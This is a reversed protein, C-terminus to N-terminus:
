KEKRQDRIFRSLEYVATVDTASGTSRPEEMELRAPVSGFQVIQGPKAQCQQDHLRLGDVFTGNTSGLDRVIVEPGYVLIECHHTSISDDRIVLANSEDRGVTTQDLVLEFVRGKLNEGIFVLKPM